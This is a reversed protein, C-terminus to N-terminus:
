RGDYEAWCDGTEYVTVASLLPLETKIKEWIWIAINEATPNGAFVAPIASSRFSRDCAFFIIRIL